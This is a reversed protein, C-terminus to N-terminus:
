YDGLKKLKMKNNYQQERKVRYQIDNAFEEMIEYGIWNLGLSECVEATTGSGMFPDIVSTLKLRSILEFWLDYDKPCPHKFLRELDKKTTIVNFPFPKWAFEWKPYKGFCLIPEATINSCMYSSGRGAPKHHYLYEIPKDFDLWIKLNNIGPTIIILNCIRKLEVYREKLFAIYNTFTDKYAIQDKKNSKTKYKVNYPPDTVCVQISKAPLSSLGVKSDMNDGIYCKGFTGSIIKM